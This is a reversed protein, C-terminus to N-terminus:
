LVARITIRWQDVDAGDRDALYAVLSSGAALDAIETGDPTQIEIPQSGTNAAYIHPGGERIHPCGFVPDPFRAIAGGATPHLVWVRALDPHLLVAAAFSTVRKSGGFSKAFSIM